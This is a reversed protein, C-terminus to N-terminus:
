QVANARDPPKKTPAHRVDTAASCTSFRRNRRSRRRRWARRPKPARHRRVARCPMAWASRPSAQGNAYEEYAWDGAMQVVGEPPQRETEPQGKLAYSMYNIWIPLALGGGTERDGLSRPNDYGIWAVGVLKPTYGCFWADFSDNTTGTKGAMDSRGLKQKALYGTGGSVVSRLLSDMIFDNRPDIVRVADKSATMPHTQQIVTGRADTM